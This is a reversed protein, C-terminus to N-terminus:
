EVEVECLESIEDLVQPKIYKALEGLQQLKGRLASFSIFKCMENM